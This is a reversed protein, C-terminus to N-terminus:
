AINQLETIQKKLYEIRKQNNKIQQKQYLEINFPEKKTMMHYYIIAIKRAVVCKAGKAGLQSKKKRYIDALPNDSRYLSNAARLLAKKVPHKKKPLRSSIIKGGSIKNNPALGCWSAFRNDSKFSSLNEGTESFLTLATDESVGYIATLNIGTIKM